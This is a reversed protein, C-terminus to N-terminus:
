GSVWEMWGNGHGLLEPTRDLKKWKHTHSDHYIRHWDEPHRHLPDYSYDTSWVTIQVQVQVEAELPKLLSSLTKLNFVSDFIFKIFVLLYLLYKGSNSLRYRLWVARNSRSEIM